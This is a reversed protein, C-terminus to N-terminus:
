IIRVDQAPSCYVGISIGGLCPCAVANGSYFYKLFNLAAQCCFNVSPIPKKQCFEIPFLVITCEPESKKIDLQLQNRPLSQFGGQM